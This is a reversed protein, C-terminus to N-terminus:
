KLPPPHTEEAPQVSEEPTKHELLVQSGLSIYKDGSWKFIERTVEVTDMYRYDQIQKDWTLGMELETKIIDPYGTTNKATIELISDDKFGDWDIYSIETELINTLENGRLLLLNINKPHWSHTWGTETFLAVIKIEDSLNLITTPASFEESPLYYEALEKYGGGNLNFVAVAVSYTGCDCAHPTDIGLTVAIQNDKDPLIRINNIGKITVYKELRESTSDPIGAPEQHWKEGIVLYSSKENPDDDKLRSIKDSPFVASIIKDEDYKSQLLSEKKCPYLQRLANSQPASSACGLLIYCLVIISLYRLM